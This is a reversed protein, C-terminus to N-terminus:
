SCKIAGNATCKYYWSDPKLSSSTTVPSTYYLYLMLEIHLSHDLSRRGCKALGATNNSQIGSMQSVALEYCDKLKQQEQVRLEIASFHVSKIERVLHM